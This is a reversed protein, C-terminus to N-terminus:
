PTDLMASVAKHADMFFRSPAGVSPVYHNYYCSGEVVPGLIWINQVSNGNRSKPHCAQDVDIGNAQPIDSRARVLGIHELSRILTCDSNALGSGQVHGAVRWYNKATPRAKPHLFTLKGARCLALLDAHREKQPGAVLRNIVKHWRRYFYQHSVENLGDFDVAERLHDRMDRWVELAAKAPAELGRCAEHFDTEIQEYVWTAYNEITVESPLVHNLLTSIKISGATEEMSEILAECTSAGARLDSSAARLQDLIGHRKEFNSGGLMAAVAAARMELMMLPLINEEFDIRGDTSQKRLCALRSRTLIVAQHRPFRTLGDPRARFPIGTRSQAFLIPENGSPKYTHREASQEYKGGRGVTLTALVDMAGLGLGEILVADDAKIPYLSNPLPYIKAVHSENGPTHRGTHGMTLVLQDVTVTTGSSSKLVFFNASYEELATVTEHHFRTTVNSPATALIEEFAYALYSGLLKRPLFDNPGVDRGDSVLSGTEVSIRIENEHCWTLFDPGIRGRAGPLHDLAAVDPFVGLQGAVTNLLLYEPQDPCHVGTGPINPDFIDVSIQQNGNREAISLIREFISLGRPGCGVLGIRLATKVM